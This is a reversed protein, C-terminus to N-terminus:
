SGHHDWNKNVADLLWLPNRVTSVECFVASHSCRALLPDSTLSRSTSSSFDVVYADALNTGSASRGGCILIRSDPLSAAAAMERGTPAEGELSVDKWETTTTTFGWVDCLVRSLGFCMLAHSYAAVAHKVARPTNRVREVPQSRRLCRFQAAWSPWCLVCSTTSAERLQPASEGMIRQCSEATARRQLVAWVRSGARRFPVCLRGCSSTHIRHSLAHVAQLTCTGKIILCCTHLTGLQQKCVGPSRMVHLRM